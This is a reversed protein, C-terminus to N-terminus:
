LEGRTGAATWSWDDLNVSGGAGSTMKAEAAAQAATVGDVCTPTEANEYVSVATFDCNTFKLEDDVLRTYADSKDTCDSNFSARIKVKKGGISSYDFTVNMVTGQAKSKFDAASGDATGVSKCLGNKLTFLGTTYTSNEPGDVELGEDTGIGDGHLVAFNEITGAYNQDLDIGDDGMFYVLANKINVTGGFCEIGDDLTAYVEINEIVTGSGVGGLTLANLENGEGITVGGHRISVYKLVGSNDSASSGGYLGYGEEVPIGELNAETDGFEASIPAKGLLAVGGWMENNERELNTGVKEGYTINDLESTFIIPADATGEAMLKGGRAVILASALTEIGEKGKIITGAEITLTVGDTVVVKGDLFYINNSTWTEDATINGSKTVEGNVIPYECSGDDTKAKEDYNSAASDTCGEKKCSTLSSSVGIIASLVVLTKVSKTFTKM